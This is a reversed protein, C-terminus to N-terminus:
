HVAIHNNSQTVSITAGNTASTVLAKDPTTVYGHNGTVTATLNNGAFQSSLDIGVAGTAGGLAFVNNVFRGAISGNCPTTSCNGNNYGAEMILGFGAYGTFTNSTAIQGTLSGSLDSLFFVGEAPYPSNAILNKVTNNEFLVPGNDELLAGQFTGVITNHSITTHATNKFTDIGIPFDSGRSTDATGESIIDNTIAVSDSANQDALAVVEPEGGTYSYPYPNAITFGSVSAAGGVDGVYVVGYVPGVTDLGQGTIKTTKAGAGVLQIASTIAVTEHYTGAAVKVTDGPIAQNVAYQITKCPHTQCNGTDTGTTAVHLTNATASATGSLLGSLAAGLLIATAAGVVARGSRQKQIM